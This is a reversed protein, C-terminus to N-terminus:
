IHTLSTNQAQGAQLSRNPQPRIFDHSSNSMQMPQKAHSPPLSAQARSWGPWKAVTLWKLSVIGHIAEALGSGSPGMAAEGDSGVSQLGILGRGYSSHPSSDKTKNTRHKHCAAFVVVRSLNRGCCFLFCMGEGRRHTLGHSNRTKLFVVSTDQRWAQHDAHYVPLTLELSTKKRLPFHLPVPSGAVKAGWQLELLGNPLFDQWFCETDLKCCGGVALVGRHLCCANNSNWDMLYSSSLLGDDGNQLFFPM